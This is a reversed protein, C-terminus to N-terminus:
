AGHLQKLVLLQKEGQERAGQYFRQCKRLAKDADMESFEESSKFRMIDPANCLMYHVRHLGYTETPFIRQPLDTFHGCLHLLYPLSCHKPVFQWFVQLLALCLQVLAHHMTSLRAIANDELEIHGVMYLMYSVRNMRVNWTEQIQGYVLSNIFPKFKQYRLLVDNEKYLCPSHELVQYLFHDGESLKEIAKSLSHCIAVVKSRKGTKHHVEEMLDMPKKTVTGHVLILLTYTESRQPNSDRFNLYDVQKKREKCCRIVYVSHLPLISKLLNVLEKKYTPKLAPKTKM